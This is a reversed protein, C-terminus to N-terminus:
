PYGLAPYRIKRWFAHASKHYRWYKGCETCLFVMGEKDGRQGILGGHRICLASGAALAEETAPAWPTLAFNFIASQPTFEFRSHVGDHFGSM